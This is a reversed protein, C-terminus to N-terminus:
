GVLKDLHKVGSLHYALLLTYAASAGVLGFRATRHERLRWLVLVGLSVLSLKALMFLVPSAALVQDMLPNAETALGSRTYLLTFMADFLNLVVVFGAAFLM